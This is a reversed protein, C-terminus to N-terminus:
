VRRPHPLRPPRGEPGLYGGLLRRRDPPRRQRRHLRPGSSSPRKKPKLEPTLSRIPLIIATEKQMGFYFTAGLPPSLSPSSSFCLGTRNAPCQREPPIACSTPSSASASAPPARRLHPLEKTTWAPGAIDLHVWPVDGAWHRLFSAATSAGGERGGTNKVLAVDSKIQDDFEDGMPLPWVPDGVEESRSWLRDRVKADTAFLGARAGGLAVVCAGTLHDEAQPAERRLRPRRGPRDPGRRRHQPGRDDQRRLRHRNDGPRYAGADPMNEASAILGVLRIPLRLEAAAQVIGLVACGGMKDFKMEDMRDAPKISIGGSDFTIAKGVVVYPAAKPNAGKGKYELAILRPPNVSGQGVAVLGGFGERRLKKEDWM